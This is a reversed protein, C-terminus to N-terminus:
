ILQEIIQDVGDRLPDICPLGHRQQYTQCVNTAEEATLMSTNVAIAVFKTEPNTLRATQLNLEMTQELGPLARGPIARMHARKETHCLVLADPQAGHLLGLSVGAFAPHFLSGQGEIIDWHQPQNSPSLDEIAGAIFDAVVCDVAIGDGAIFIGSQGTAKFEVDMAHKKMGKEIALATYMKGVSCDTGVTLLRKGSRKNGNGTRFSKTPHRVDLLSVGHQTAASVIQEFSDLRQHLGSAIDMGAEIAQLISPLWKSEITGGSKAFGLVFTQAGAAVAQEINMKPLGTTVECGPLIYEAVALEPRWDAVGKAIKISLPDKADGIFLLYPAKINM